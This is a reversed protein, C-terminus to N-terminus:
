LNVAAHKCKHVILDIMSSCKNYFWCLVKLLNLARHVLFLLCCLNDVLVEFVYLHSCFMILLTTFWIIFGYGYNRFINIVFYGTTIKINYLKIFTKM